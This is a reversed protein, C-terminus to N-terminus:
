ETEDEEPGKKLFYALQKATLPFTVSEKPTNAEMEKRKKEIENIFDRLKGKFKEKSWPVLIPSIGAFKVLCADFKGEQMARNASDEGPVWRDEIGIFDYHPYEAEAYIMEYEESDSSLGLSKKKEENNTDILIIPFKFLNDLLLIGSM